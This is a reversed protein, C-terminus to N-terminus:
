LDEQPPLCLPRGGGGCPRSTSHHFDAIDSLSRSYSRSNGMEKLISIMGHKLSPAALVCIRNAQQFPVMYDDTDSESNSDTFSETISVPTLLATPTTGSPQDSNESCGVTQQDEFTATSTPTTDLNLMGNEDSTTTFSKDDVSVTLDIYLQTTELLRDLTNNLDTFSPRDYPKPHWCSLMIEYIEHSCRSPQEMRYGNKLLGFLDKNPIGPYPCGGFTVIEWLVVGFSWVDSKTTFINDFISEMPMWKYPLMRASTPQYMNTEYIDRSLGFDSIKLLRNNFILINRAALDRHVFKKQCLFEMGATIQLAYSLLTAQSIPEPHEEPLGPVETSCDNGVPLKQQQTNLLFTSSSFSQGNQYLYKERYHRLHTRLDGLPCYDMIVCLTAGTSCCGIMNVINQHHGMQKMMEIEMLLSRREEPTAHDKPMKVAVIKDVDDSMWRKDLRAKLVRGFAGEGLASLFTIRSFDIEFEDAPLFPVKDKCSAGADVSDYLPNLEKRSRRIYLLNERIIKQECRRWKIIGIIVMITLLVPIISFLYLMQNDQKPVTQGSTNFTDEDAAIFYGYGEGLVLKRVTKTSGGKSMVTVHIWYESNMHLGVIKFMTANPGLVTNGHHPPIRESLPLSPVKDWWISINCVRNHDNAFVPLSWEMTLNVVVSNNLTYADGVSSVINYIPDPSCISYNHNTTNLCNLTQFVLRTPNSSRSFEPGFTKVEVFYNTDFKLNTLEYKLEPWNVINVSHFMDHIVGVVNWDLKYICGGNHGPKWRVEATVYSGQVIQKTIETDRPASINYSAIPIKIWETAKSVDVIGTDTVATINFRYKLKPNLEMIPVFSFNTKGLVGWPYETGNETMAKMGVIFAMPSSTSNGNVDKVNWRLYLRYIDDNGLSSKYSEHCTVIPRGLVLSVSSKVPESYLSEEHKIKYFMGCSKQCTPTTANSCLQLCSSMSDHSSSTCPFSCESCIASKVACEYWKYVDFIEDSQTSVQKGYSGLTVDAHVLALRATHQLM